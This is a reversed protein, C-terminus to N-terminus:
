TKDLKIYKKKISYCVQTLNTVIENICINSFCNDLTLSKIMTSFKNM